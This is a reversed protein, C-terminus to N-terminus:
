ETSRPNLDLGKFSRVQFTKIIERLGETFVIPYSSLRLASVEEECESEFEYGVIKSGNSTVYDSGNLFGFIYPCICNQFVSLLV